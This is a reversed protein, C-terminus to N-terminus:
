PLHNSHPGILSQPTLMNFGHYYFVHFSVFSILSPLTIHSPFNVYSILFIVSSNHKIRTLTFSKKPLPEHIWVSTVEKKNKRTEKRIKRGKHCPYNAKNCFYLRYVRFRWSHLYLPSHKDLQLCPYKLTM